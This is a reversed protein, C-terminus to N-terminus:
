GQRAAILRRSSPAHSALWAMGAVGLLSATSLVAALASGLPWNFASTFQGYILTTMVRSGSGGLLQPTVFATMCLTFVLTAGSVLGPLTLPLLVEAIARLRTASLTEAADLLVPDTREMATLLSLVMFPLQVHVLGLFVAGPTYMMELPGTVLHAALLASNIVGTDGLLVIWGYSRVVLSILLPAVVLLVLLTKHRPPARWLCYAVPYGLLVTVVTVGASLLVTRLLIVLYYPDGIARAYSSLSYGPQLVMRGPLAEHFSLEILMGVPVVLLMVVVLVPGLLLAVPRPWGVAGRERIPSIV